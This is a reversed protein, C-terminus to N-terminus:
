TIDPLPPADLRRVIMSTIQLWIREAAPVFTIIGLANDTALSADYLTGYGLVRGLFPQDLGIDRIRQVPLQRVRRFVLGGITMVRQPTIVVWTARWQAVRLAVWLAAVAFLVWIIGVIIWTNQNQEYLWGNLAIAAALAAILVGLHRTIMAWHRHFVIPRQDLESPMLYRAVAPPVVVPVRRVYTATGSPAGSPVETYSDEISM